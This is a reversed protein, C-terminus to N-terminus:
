DAAGGSATLGQRASTDSPTYSLVASFLERARAKDGARLLSWGLGRKMELDAPYLTLVRRYAAAAQQYRGLNFLAFARRRQATIENPAKTLAKDLTALADKWRRDGMQALSLGLLPEVARWRRECAARYYTTSKAYDGALYSLWGLRLQVFYRGKLAAPLLELRKAAERYRRKQALEYSDVLQRSLASSPTAARAPAGFPLLAAVLFFSTIIKM